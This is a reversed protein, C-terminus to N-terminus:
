VFEFYVGYLSAVKTKFSPNSSLGNIKRGIATRKVGFHNACKTISDFKIKEGSPLTAQVCKEKYSNDPLNGNVHCRHWQNYSNDCWELNDVNNNQRNGDRHNVQPLNQPNPIFEEAVLRHVMRYIIKDRSGLSLGIRRYGDKDLSPKLIREPLRTNQGSIRACSKVRGLNSIEYRGSTEKIVKWIEKM